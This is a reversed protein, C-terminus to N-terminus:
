SLRVVGAELEGRPKLSQWSTSGASLGAQAAGLGIGALSGAAGYQFSLDGGLAAADSGQLHADLLTNMLPWGNANAANSACAADFSQVIRTFDFVEVERNRTKDASAADHDGGTTIVQLTDVPKTRAGFYWDKLSIREGEGVGVILDSGSRTLRLDDYRIGGGLSLVDKGASVLTDAGDGRNFAVLNRGAGSHITDDGQGGAIWDDGSGGMVDDNGGGADLLDAENGGDLRDAGAGAQLVDDHNGGYFVNSGKRDLLYDDGNEGYLQDDGGEGYLEDSDHGGYLRDAGGFGYLIDSGDGGLLTDHGAGGYMADSGRAGDM